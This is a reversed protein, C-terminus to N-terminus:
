GDDCAEGVDDRADLITEPFRVFGELVFCLDLRRTTLFAPVSPPHEDSRTAATYLSAARFDLALPSV